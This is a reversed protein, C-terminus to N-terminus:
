HFFRCVSNGQIRKGPEGEVCVPFTTLGFNNNHEPFGPSLRSLVLGGKERGCLVLCEGSMRTDQDAIETCWCGKTCSTFLLIRYVIWTKKTLNSALRWKTFWVYWRFYLAIIPFLYSASLTHGRCARIMCGTHVQPRLTTDHWWQPTIACVQYSIITNRRWLGIPNSYLVNKAPSPFRRSQSDLISCGSVHATPAITKKTSIMTVLGAHKTM